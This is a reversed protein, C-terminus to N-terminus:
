GGAVPPIFTVEDGERLRTDMSTFANNVAVRLIGVPLTFGYRQALEAYLDGPTAATTTRTERDHRTADRLMAFYHVTITMM